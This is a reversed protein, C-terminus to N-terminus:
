FKSARKKSSEEIEKQRRQAYALLTNDAERSWFATGQAYQCAFAQRDSRHLHRGQFSPDSYISGRSGDGEFSVWPSTDGVNSPPQLPKLTGNSRWEAEGANAQFINYILGAMGSVREEHTYPAEFGKYFAQFFMPMHQINAAAGVAFQDRATSREFATREAAETDKYNPISWDLKDFPQKDQSAQSARNYDNQKDLLPDRLMERHFSAAHRFLVVWAKGQDNFEVDIRFVDRVYVRRTKSGPFRPPRESCFKGYRIDCEDMTEGLRALVTLPLLLLLFILPLKM